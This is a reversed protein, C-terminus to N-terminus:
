EFGYYQIHLTHTGAQAQIARFNQVNAADVIDWYDGDRKGLGDTTTPNLSTKAGLENYRIAVGTADSELTVLAYVTKAPVSALSVVSGAVTLKEYGIAKYSNKTARVLEKLYYLQQNAYVDM